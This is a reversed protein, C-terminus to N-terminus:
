KGFRRDRDSFDKVAERFMTADYDPFLKDSFSLQSDAVDWMLFGSSNHFGDGTRILLDVPTLEATMLCSKLTKESISEPDLRRSAAEKFAQLMDDVGSYALFFNLFHKSHRGTKKEIETLIKSLSMPFQERWRGIFRVRVEDDYIEESGLLKRFYTDYIRLLAQKEALPRKKLNDLSSGWFSLERIGLKRAERMLVEANESGAEHGKWPELGRARAWRRNGDPIIAVHNPIIITTDM